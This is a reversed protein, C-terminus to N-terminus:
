IEEVKYANGNSFLKIQTTSFQVGTALSLKRIANRLAGKESSCSTYFVRNEGYWNLTVKFKRYLPKRNHRKGSLDFTSKKVQILPSNM